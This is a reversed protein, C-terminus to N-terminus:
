GTYGASLSELYGVVDDSRGAEIMEWATKYEFPRIPSNKVHYLATKPDNGLDVAAQLVRVVNRAFTQAKENHPNLRLTNRHVGAAEAFTQPQMSLMEILRDISITSSGPERVTDVIKENVAAPVPAREPDRWGRKEARGVAWVFWVALATVGIMLLYPVATEIM